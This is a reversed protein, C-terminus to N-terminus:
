ASIAFFRASQAFVQRFFTWVGPGTPGVTGYGRGYGISVYRRPLGRRKCTRSTFVDHISPAEFGFESLRTTQGAVSPLDIEGVAFGTRNAGHVQRRVSFHGCQNSFSEEIEPVLIARASACQQLMRQAQGEM